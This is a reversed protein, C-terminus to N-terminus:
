HISALRQGRVRWVGGSFRRLNNMKLHFGTAFLISIWGGSHPVSYLTAPSPNMNSLLPASLFSIPSTYLNLKTGKFVSIKINRWTRTCSRSMNTCIVSSRTCIANWISYILTKKEPNSASPIGKNSFMLGRSEEQNAKKNWEIIIRCQELSAYQHSSIPLFSCLTERIGWGQDFRVATWISHHGEHKSIM